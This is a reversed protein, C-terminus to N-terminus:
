NSNPFEKKLENVIQVGEKTGKWEYDHCLVLVRITQEHQKRTRHKPHFLHTDVANLLVPVSKGYEHLFIKQLWTANAIIRLDSKYVADVVTRETHYLREDHQEYDFKKGTHPMRLLKTAVPVSVAILYDHEDLDDLSYLRVIKVKTFLPLLPSRYCMNMLCRTWSKSEVAVTVAYGRQALVHAFMLPALVGGAARLHPLLFAVKKVQTSM